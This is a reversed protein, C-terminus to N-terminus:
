LSRAHQDHWCTPDPEVRLEDAMAKAEYSTAFVHTGELKCNLCRLRWGTQPPLDARGTALPLPAEVVTLHRHRETSFRDRDARIQPHISITTM